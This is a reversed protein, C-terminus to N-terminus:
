KKKAHGADSGFEFLAGLLLFMILSGVPENVMTGGSLDVFMSLPAVKPQSVAAVPRLQTAQPAVTFASASAVFALLLLLKNM